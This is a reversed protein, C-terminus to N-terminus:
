DRREDCIKIYEPFINVFCNQKVYMEGKRKMEYGLEKLIMKLILNGKTINIKVCSIGCKELNRKTLYSLVYKGVNRSLMRCSISIMEIKEEEMYFAGVIGHEFYVDDYELVEIKRNKVLTKIYFYDYKKKLSNMKHTRQLLEYVRDIDQERAVRLNLFMKMRAFFDNLEAAESLEQRFKIESKYYDRRSLMEYTCTEVQFRKDDLLMKCNKALICYIDPYYYKIKQLEYEENDVFAIEDMAIGLIDSVKKLTIEKQEFCIQPVIFYDWLEFKKLIQVSVEFNGFSCISTVIGRHQLEELIKKVWPYLIVNEDYLATGKWLTGDLDFVVCKVKKQFNDNKFHKYITWGGRVLM